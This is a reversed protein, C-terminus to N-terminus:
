KLTNTYEVVATIQEDTLISEFPTMVGKGKKVIVIKEDNTLVSEPLPKAGNIGLKGDAGHCIVCNMKYIKAGDVKKPKPKSAVPKSPKKEEGGCSIILGASVVLAIALIKKMRRKVVENLPNM